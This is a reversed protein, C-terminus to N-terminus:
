REMWEKLITWFESDYIFERYNTVQYREEKEKKAAFVKEETIKINIEEADEKKELWICRYNFKRIIVKEKGERELEQKLEILPLKQYLQKKNKKRKEINNWVDRYYGSKDSVEEPFPAERDYLIGYLSFEDDDDKFQLHYKWSNKKSEILVLSAQTQYHYKKREDQICILFIDNEPIYYPFDSFFSTGGESIDYTKMERKQGEFKLNLETEIFFRESQRYSIREWVFFLAMIFYYSNLVLWMLIISYGFTDGQILKIFCKIMGIWSFLLLGGFLIQCKRIIKKNERQQKKSKDKNTVSFTEESIGFTEFFVAPLLAPFLITDYVNSLRATRMKGTMENLLLTYMIMQPVWFFLLGEVTCDVVQVSFVSAILPAFIFIFRRIPTYWYLFSFFYDMKQRFNLGKIRFLSLRKMTQICGRAWRERQKYLSLLDTPALGNALVKAVAYTQYGKSQILMGTALDETISKTYFGGAEELAKRSLITNSGAYIVSNNKNRTLQVQRFFFNQENPVSEEAYLNFQFLDPNYFSQPSQVFGMKTGEIFFYPVLEILFESMPIMDADFTAILPSSSCSLAHNYNGAKAGTHEERKLYGVKMQQALEEIEERSGDDCIYIHVKEKQPYEMNKCGWITKKLLSAPENYTAIFVDVDPFEEAKIKPKIIKQKKENWGNLGINIVELFGSIEALLLLIAIFLAMVGYRFPLTFFIRWVIYLITFVMTIGFLIKQKKQFEM